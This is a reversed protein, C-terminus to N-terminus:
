EVINVQTSLHRIGGSRLNPTNIRIDCDVVFITGSSSKIVNEDHMDSLYIEPTAYTWNRANILEFGMAKMYVAIEEETIREGEIFPQEVIVKFQKEDDRGFGIVNMATEPFYANHLSIRDLALIPQIFYDLGISKIISAGNDYVKAEGGEAIFYGFSDQLCHEVSDFWLGVAKAWSEIVEAQKEGYQLERKFSDIREAESDAPAEAGALISAIVHSSGGASCGYQEQPSFRQYVLQRSIFQEAYRDLKALGESPFGAKIIADVSAWFDSNNM